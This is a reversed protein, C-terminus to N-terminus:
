LGAILAALVTAIATIVAVKIPIPLTRKSQNETDNETLRIEQVNTNVVSLDTFRNYPKYDNAEVRINVNVISRRIIDISFRFVGETDTSNVIPTGLGELSVKADKIPQNKQDVVRGVFNPM